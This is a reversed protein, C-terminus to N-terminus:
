ASPIEAVVRRRFVIPGPSEVSLVEWGDSCERNLIGTLRSEREPYKHLTDGGSNWVVKHEWRLSHTEAFYAVPLAPKGVAARAENATMTGAAVGLGLFQLLRRRTGTMM